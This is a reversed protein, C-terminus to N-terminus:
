AAASRADARVPAAHQQRCWASRPRRWTLLSFCPQCGPGVGVPPGDRRGDLADLVEIAVGGGPPVLALYSSRKAAAHPRVDRAGRADADDVDAGRCRGRPDAGTAMSRLVPTGILYIGTVSAIVTAGSLRSRPARRPWPPTLPRLRRAVGPGCSERFRMLIFLSYDIALAIGFMSVTSTVFKKREDHHGDVVRLGAGYDGRGHLHRPGAAVGRPPWRDSCRSPM